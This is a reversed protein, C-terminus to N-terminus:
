VFFTKFIWNWFTAPTQRTIAIFDLLRTYELLLRLVKWKFNNVIEPQITVAIVPLEICEKFEIEISIEIFLGKLTTYGGTSHTM